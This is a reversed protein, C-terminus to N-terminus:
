AESDQTDFNLTVNGSHEVKDKFAGVNVHKGIANLLDLKGALGVKLDTGWQGPKIQLSELRELVEPGAKSFDFYPRGTKSDVTFLYSLDTNYLNLLENLVWDSDIKANKIREKIAKTIAAQVHPKAMMLKPCCQIEKAAAKASFSNKMYAYIFLIERPKLGAMLDAM